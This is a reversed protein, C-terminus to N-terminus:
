GSSGSVSSSSWWRGSAFLRPPYRCVVFDNEVDDVDDVDVLRHHCLSSGGGGSVEDEDEDDEDAVTKDNTHDRHKKITTLSLSTKNVIRKLKREREDLLDDEVVVDLM